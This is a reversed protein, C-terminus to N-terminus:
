SNGGALLAPWILDLSAMNIKRIINEDPLDIKPHDWNGAIRQTWRDYRMPSYAGCIDGAIVNAQKNILSLAWALDAATFLGNEWNTVADESRLCDMDVTIYVDKVALNGVFDRFSDKWTHRNVCHFLRRAAPDMREAWAHPILRGSRLASQDALLRHPFRLEFNGCGWVDIQRVNNGALARRTWSGCSWRPPRRDWDPHNDFSVLTVPKTLRRVFLATLYHFDGSGYLIFPALSNEVERYFSEVLSEPATYRLLPGWNRLDYEQLGMVGHDWADDLNFHVGLTELNGNRNKIGSESHFLRVSDSRYLFM